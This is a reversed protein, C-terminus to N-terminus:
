IKLHSFNWNQDNHLLKYWVLDGASFFKYTGFLIYLSLQKFDSFLLWLLLCFSSLIQSKFYPFSMLHSGCNRSNQKSPKIGGTHTLCLPEFSFLFSYDQGSSNPISLVLFQCFILTFFLLLRYIVGRLYQNIELYYKSSHSKWSGGLFSVLLSFYSIHSEAAAWCLPPYIKVTLSTGPQLAKTFM